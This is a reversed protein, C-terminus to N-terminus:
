RALTRGVERGNEYITKSVKGDPWRWIMEGHAKGNVYPGDAVTGDPWRTVWRGHEKGNVYPGESVMGGTNSSVWRGHRKGEVLLGTGKFPYKIATAALTGRGEAVGEPCSGSWIWRITAKFYTHWFYCNPPDTLKHWCAAGEQMGACTPSLAAAADQDQSAPQPGVLLSGHVFAAGGGPAEIRLWDGAEGTVHVEEGAELLGVKGHDTGPGSRVNTRTRAQMM